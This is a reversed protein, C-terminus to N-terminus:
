GNYGGDTTLRPTSGVAPKVGGMKSAAYGGQFYGGLATGALGGIAGFMANDNQQNQMNQQNAYGANTLNTQQNRNLSAQVASFGQGAAQGTMLNQFNRLANTENYRAQWGQLGQNYANDGRNDMYGLKQMGLDAGIRGSAEAMAGSSLNGGAAYKAASKNLAQDLYGKTVEDFEAGSAQRAKAAQAAINPFDNVVKQVAENRLNTNNQIDTLQRKVGNVLGKEEDSLADFFEKYNDHGFYGAITDDVSAGLAINALLPAGGSQALTQAPNDQAGSAGAAGPSGPKNPGWKPILGSQGSTGGTVLNGFADGMKATPSGKIKNTGLTLVTGVGGGVAKAVKGGM